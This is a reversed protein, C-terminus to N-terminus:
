QRDHPEEIPSTAAEGGAGGTVGGSLQDAAAVPDLRREAVDTVLADFAPGHCRQAAARAGEEAVLRRVEAALRESRRAALRGREALFAQHRFVAEWLDELGQGLAASTRVVPPRWGVQSLDLALELDRVTEDTGPRDAKNVVFVDAIELVGAKVTQIADGWGPTVVVVTTDAAHAVDVEVQGTGVTEVLVWPWGAADLVRVAGLTARALGGLQGRSAMSRVFVGPDTAHDQMRVRDGLLAGGSFPSSPDVAVVAVREARSRLLAVLRDVLTSKGAGPAGTIGVIRAEGTRPFILRVVAREAAPGSEVLSILKAVARGDGSAAAEVLPAPDQPPLSSTSPPSKWGL